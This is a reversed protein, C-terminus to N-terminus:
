DDIGEYRLGIQRRVEDMVQMIELTEDLTINPSETEGARLCRAFEAAQERLGGGRYKKDWGDIVDGSRSIVRFNSPNYFTRDVEIRAETGVIVARNPSAASLTTTLVAQAGSEYSFIMSTQADVGTFAPTAKATIESPKGLVMHAFSVPYIGLDLLAGGGLSPAFLRFNPDEAFWQGHDARVTVIRGLVGSAVIERIRKMHPLSRTWMAEMLLLNKARAVRVMEAAESYNMAFAKECLVPKGAELAMVTNEKHMPHPTAVYIADVDPNNVLEFYSGFRHPIHFRDAFANASALTRSGVAVVRHDTLHQLDLVFGEAIHGTSLIGWRIPAPSLSM